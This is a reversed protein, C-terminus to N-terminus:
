YFLFQRVIRDTLFGLMLGNISSLVSQGKAQSISADRMQGKPVRNESSRWLEILKCDEDKRVGSLAVGLSAFIANGALTM